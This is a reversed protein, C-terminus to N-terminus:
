KVMWNAEPVPQKYLFTVGKNQMHGHECVLESPMLVHRFFSCVARQSNAWEWAGFFVFKNCIAVIDINM